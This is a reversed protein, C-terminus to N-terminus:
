EEYPYLQPKKNNKKKNKNKNKKNKNKNKNKKRKKKNSRELDVFFKPVTIITRHRLNKPRRPVIATPSPVVWGFYNSRGHNSVEFRSQGPYSWSKSQDGYALAAPVVMKRDGGIKMPPIELSLDGVIDLDWGPIVQGKGVVFEAPEGPQTQDFTVKDLGKQYTGVYYCLV